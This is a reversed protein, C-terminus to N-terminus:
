LKKAKMSDVNGSTADVVFAKYLRNESQTGLLISLSQNTPNAHSLTVHWKKKNESLEIEELIIQSNDGSVDRYYKAANEVAVRPEIM